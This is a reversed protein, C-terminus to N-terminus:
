NNLLEAFDSVHIEAKLDVTGIPMTPLVFKIHNGQRKKDFAIGKLMVDKPASDPIETPLGSAKLMEILKATEDADFVKRREGLRCAFVTGIAVAEGHTVGYRTAKEIAHALTHGLNLCRRLEGEYPDKGVVAMKMKVCATIIGILAPSDVKFGEGLLLESLVRYLTRPGTKYDTREAITTEIYAYKIIEGLGSLLDRQPLSKLTDPDVIVAEPFHFTGALNKGAPLNIGTKGGIAADVQALLTTPILVSRIGRLYTSAAFGAMDSLAGGGVAVLTDSRDMELAQMQEWVRLLSEHSKCEEGDPLELITTAYGAEKIHEGAAAAWTNLLTPQALLLVRNGANTQKLIAGASEIAGEGIAVRTSLPVNTKLLVNILDTKHGYSSHFRM